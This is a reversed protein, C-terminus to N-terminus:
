PTFTLLLKQFSSEAITRPSHDFTIINPVLKTDDEPDVGFLVAQSDGVWSVVLEKTKEFYLALTATTGFEIPRHAYNLYLGLFYSRARPEMGRQAGLPIHQQNPPPDLPFDINRWNKNVLCQAQINVGSLM